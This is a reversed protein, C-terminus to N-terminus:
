KPSSSSETKAPAPSQASQLRTLSADVRKKFSGADDIFAGSFTTLRMECTDGKPDLVATGIRFSNGMSISFSAVMETSDMFVVGYEGSNRVTDKVAHWLTSCSISYSETQTRAFLPGACFMLMLAVRAIRKM